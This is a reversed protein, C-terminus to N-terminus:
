KHTKVTITKGVADKCHEFEKNQVRFFLELIQKKVIVYM